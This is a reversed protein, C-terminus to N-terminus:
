SDNATADLAVLRYRGHPAAESCCTPARPQHARPQHARAAAEDDVAQTRSVATPTSSTSSTPRLRTRFTESIRAPNLHRHVSPHRQRGAARCSVRTFGMEVGFTDDDRHVLAEKVTLGLNLSFDILTRDTRLTGTAHYFPTSCATSSQRIGGSRRIRSPMSGATSSRAAPVRLIRRWRRYPKTSARPATGSVSSTSALRCLRGPKRALRLRM